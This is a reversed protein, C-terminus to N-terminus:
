SGGGLRAVKPAAGSTLLVQVQRSATKGFLVLGHASPLADIQLENVPEKGDVIPIIQVPALPTGVKDAAPLEAIKRLKDRAADLEDLAAPLPDQKLTTSSQVHKAFALAAKQAAKDLEVWTAEVSEVGTDNAPGRSLKSVLPTCKGRDWPDPAMERIALAESTKTSGPSKGLLCGRADQYRTEWAAIEAQADKLAQAPQYIKFFYFGAGGAVLAVVAFIAVVRGRDSM